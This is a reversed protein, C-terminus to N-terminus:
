PHGRFLREAYTRAHARAPTTWDGGAEALKTARHVLQELEDTGHRELLALLLGDLCRRGRLAQLEATQVPSTEREHPAPALGPITGDLSSITDERPKRTTSM